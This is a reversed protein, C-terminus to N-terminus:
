ILKRIHAMLWTLGVAFFVVSLTSLPMFIAALVPSLNGSAAWGVGIINYVVSLLFSLKVINLAIKSFGVYDSLNEFRNADLIADCSPSFAQVDETLAIGIKSQRLAGADNLGDGIMM